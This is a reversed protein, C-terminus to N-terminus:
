RPAVRRRYASFFADPGAAIAAKLAKEGGQAVINQAMMAGHRYWLREGGSMEDLVDWDAADLVEQADREEFSRLIEAYRESIAKM